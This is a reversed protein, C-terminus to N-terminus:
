LAIETAGYNNLLHKDEKGKVKFGLLEIFELLDFCKSGDKIEQL